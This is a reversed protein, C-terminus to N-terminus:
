ILDASDSSLEAISSVKFNEAIAEDSVRQM